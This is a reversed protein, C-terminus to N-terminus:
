RELLTRTGENSVVLTFETVATNNGPDAEALLGDPDTTAVLRYRGSPLDEIDIWQGELDFRYQDGWGVSLGMSIDASLRNGCGDPSHVPDPPALPDGSLRDVGDFFCFGVKNDTPPPDDGTPEVLEISYRAIDALHWHFHTDGGWVAGTEVPHTSFGGDTHAILQEFDGSRVSGRVVLEGPGANNIESTFRLVHRDALMEIRLEFPASSWLDPLIPEGRAEDGGPRLLVVSVVVITAVVISWRTRNSM